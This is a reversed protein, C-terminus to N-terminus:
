GDPCVLVGARRVCPQKSQGLDNTPPALFVATESPQAAAGTKPPSGADTASAVTPLSFPKALRGADTAPLPVAVPTLEATTTGLDANPQGGRLDIKSGEVVGEIPTNLLKNLMVFDIAQLAEKIAADDNSQTIVTVSLAPTLAARIMRIDPDGTLGAAPLETFAVGDVVDYVALGAATDGAQLMAQLAATDDTPTAAATEIGSPLDADQILTAVLRLRTDGKVMTMGVMEGKDSSAKNLAAMAKVLAIEHAQDERNADTAGVMKDASKPSIEWGEIATPLAATLTPPYLLDNFEDKRHAIYDSIGFSEKASDRKLIYFDLGICGLVLGLVFGIDIIRRM